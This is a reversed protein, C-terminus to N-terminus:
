NLFNYMNVVVGIDSINNLPFGFEIISCMSIIDQQEKTQPTNFNYVITALINPQAIEDLILQKITLIIQYEPTNKLEATFLDKIQQKSSM